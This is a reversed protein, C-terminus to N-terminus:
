SRIPEAPSMTVVGQDDVQVVFRNPSRGLVRRLVSGGQVVIAHTDEHTEVTYGEAVRAELFVDLARKRDGGQDIEGAM